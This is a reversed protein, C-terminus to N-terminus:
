SFILKLLEQEKTDEGEIAPTLSRYVYDYIRKHRGNSEGITMNGRFECIM